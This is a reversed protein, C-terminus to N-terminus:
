KLITKIERKGLKIKEEYSTRITLVQTRKNIRAKGVKELNQNLIEGNKLDIFFVEERNRPNINKVEKLEKQEQATLGYVAVTVGIENQKM